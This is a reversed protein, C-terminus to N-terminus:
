ANVEAQPRTGYKQARHVREGTAFFDLLDNAFTAFENALLKNSRVFYNYALVAPIAVGLGMCTMILAEGVPAAVVSLTAKGSIGIGVLAHYIGWVTGFLGVFPATSGVTALLTLGSDFAVGERRLGARLSREIFEHRTLVETMRGGAANSHHAAADIADIAIKSFPEYYPEAALSERAQAPSRAEWFQEVVNPGRRRVVFLRASNYVVYFWTAMSMGAMVLLVTWGVVDIHNLMHSFGMKTLALADDQEILTQYDIEKSPAATSLQTSVVAEGAPPTTSAAAPVAAADTAAPAAAPDAPTAAPAAPTAAIPAQAAGKNDQSM